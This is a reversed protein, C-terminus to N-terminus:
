QMIQSVKNRLANINHYLIGPKPVSNVKIQLESFNGPAFILIYIRKPSATSKSFNIMWGMLKRRYNGFHSLITKSSIPQYQIVPLLFGVRLTHCPYHATCSMGCNCSPAFERPLTEVSTLKCTGTQFRSALLHPLAVMWGCVVWVVGSVIILVCILIEPPLRNAM